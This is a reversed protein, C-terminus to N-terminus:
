CMSLKSASVVNKIEYLMAHLSMKLQVSFGTEISMFVTKSKKFITGSVQGDGNKLQFNIYKLLVDM